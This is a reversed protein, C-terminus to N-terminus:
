RSWWGIPQPPTGSAALEAAPPAGAGIRFEQCVPRECIDLVSRGVKGWGRSGLYQLFVTYPGSAPADFYVASDIGFRFVAGWPAFAPNSAPGRMVSVRAIRAGPDAEPVVGVLIDGSNPFQLEEEGIWKGSRSMSLYQYCTTCPIDPRAEARGMLMRRAHEMKPHRMATPLDEAFADSGFDGWFNVCCGLMKGNWNLVPARWLQYCIDRTYEVGEKERFEERGAAGLGTQISVLDRNVVPSHDENWSLRPTFHMGRERAMARVTELEHENHGMVVFQWDLLPFASGRLRRLERIRDVHALVRDLHGNVRYRAYTAQTAGDISCTLARVRYKVVAELAAETAFNLNVGNRGSVVVKREWACALLEPLQPNLFMEGYNSLEVERIEPNRDLLREFDALKLHGAGLVPRTLGNATPCVPCALQCHSSADIQIAQPQIARPTM